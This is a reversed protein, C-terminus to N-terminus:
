PCASSSRLAYGRRLKRELWQDLAEVAQAENLYLDLRERGHQGIRGWARQLAVDGFLTSQIALVYFRAMNRAPDRRELIISLTDAM